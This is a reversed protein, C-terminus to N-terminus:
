NWQILIDSGQALAADAELLSPLVDEPRSAVLLGHPNDFKLWRGGPVAKEAVVVVPPQLREQM